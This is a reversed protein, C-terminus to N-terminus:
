KVDNYKQHHRGGMGKNLRRFVLYLNQKPPKLVCPLMNM